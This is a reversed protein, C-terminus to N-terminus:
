KSPTVIFIPLVMTGASQRHPFRDQSGFLNAQALEIKFTGDNRRDLTIEAPKASVQRWIESDVLSPQRQFDTEFEEIPRDKSKKFAQLHRRIIM